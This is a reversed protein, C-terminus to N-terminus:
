KVIFFYSGSNLTLIASGDVFDITTIREDLGIKNGKETIAAISQAPIHISASSNSPVNVEWSLSSADKKWASKITGYPSEFSANVQSLGQPFVPKLTFKKFGVNIKDTSIGALDEYYWTMLDGLLMVHNASNMEPDATNGNWLEWITTAGNEIMYGWSPYTRNTAIRLALDERGYASLGRMLFQIGILGVSVHSKFEGETKAVLNDFVKTEYTEPVLGQMLSIINATVTNNDYAATEKDFFRDNYAKKVNAALSLFIESDAAQDAIVAFKSMLILIRYFFSTSLIAGSTIRAPDKSHILEMSEPPMCWDGFGDKSIIYDHMYNTQIFDLWRKMSAYHRVIGQKDGRQEYLMNAIHIYASPWTVDDMYVKWYNPAVAPLAGNELQADEIDDMWKEYLLTNDFMFSEGLCGAARDGLWGMREDRQPCDTPMSRYNGKIGWSANKYIQNLTADSCEFQGITPMQDYNVKGTFSALDPLYDLGSIEVFRFGHYTFTPQWSFLGDKSPTYIDTVNASRLNATYLTGDDKLLEAFRMKIPKDKVGKLNVALWGVMNQGMDLIYSGDEHAKISLPKLEEMTMINPNNQAQLKGEPADVLHPILWQSDDFGSNHWGEFEMNANYEEGDFENNAIIPGDLSMKWSQDSVIRTLQQKSDEVELQMLLKPFGYHAVGEKRMTFYRGNGLVVAITNKKNSQLLDSVDFVNYNVRKLYDTATPAFIDQGVKKGNIYCEYMGLGAIYLRARKPKGGELDFEKRMYRASLRTKQTMAGWGLQQDQDINAGGSNISDIGIWQAKWDHESLYAMAWRSNAWDSEGKNTFVKVKWFYDKTSELSEGEYPILVSLSSEIKGSNWKLNSEKELDSISEAVMIQYADQQVNPLSSAIQWSLRPQLVDLGIPQKKLEVQLNAVKVDKTSCSALGLLLILVLATSVISTKM